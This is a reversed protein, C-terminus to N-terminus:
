QSLTLFLTPRWVRGALAVGASSNSTSQWGVRRADTRTVIGSPRVMNQTASASAPAPKPSASVM